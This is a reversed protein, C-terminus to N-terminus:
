FTWKFSWFDDSKRHFSDHFDNNNFDIDDWTPTYKPEPKVTPQSSEWNDLIQDVASDALDKSGLWGAEYAEKLLRRLQEIDIVFREM